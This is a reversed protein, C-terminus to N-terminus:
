GWVGEPLRPLSRIDGCGHMSPLVKGPNCRRAPDFARRLREQHELDVDSFYRSMFERKELGIGHEGSLAGGHALTLEVIEEGARHVREVQDPDRADFLLLPHLNGDGAHFVNMVPLGHRGAIEEVAELVDALSQRPVVTDHLYYDPAIQAVAGFASKRGKWLLAREREDAARRVTAGRAHCIQTIRDVSTEVGGTLGAVEALLVAAADEPYGARVFREVVEITRRDMVELAAPVIGAAIVDSVAEAAARVTTFAALLTGVVPPDRTLAVAARTAIGLTGEGGVFVGRLDYGPPEPDLGGLTVVDGDGLVVDIARVHDNTVGEALCHPGGSNNAINGGITCAQQSSPDPAFHHGGDRLAGTLTANVVGVEVWAVRNALDVELIRDMKSLAVVIAEDQPVAGGALGTGAGRAVVARGHRAAVQVVRRVEDADTPFCVPGATGDRIISADTSYLARAPAGADVRSADGLARELDARLPSRDGRARASRGARTPRGM